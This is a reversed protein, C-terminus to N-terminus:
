EALPPPRHIVEGVGDVDLPKLIQQLRRDILGLPPRDLPEKGFFFGLRRQRCYFRLGFLGPVGVSRGNRAGLPPPPRARSPLMSQSLAAYTGALWLYRGPLSFQPPPACKRPQLSPQLIAEPNEM